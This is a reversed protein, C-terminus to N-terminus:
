CIEHKQALQRRTGVGAAIAALCLAKVVLGHPPGLVTANQGDTLTCHRNM